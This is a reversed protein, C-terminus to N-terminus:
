ETPGIDSLKQSDKKFRHRNIAQVCLDANKMFLRLLSNVTQEDDYLVNRNKEIAKTMLNQWNQTHDVIVIAKTKRGKYM